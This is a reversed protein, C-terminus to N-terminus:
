SQHPHGWIARVVEPFRFNRNLKKLLKDPVHPRPERLLRLAATRAAAQRTEYGNKDLYLKSVCLQLLKVFSTASNKNPCPMGAYM